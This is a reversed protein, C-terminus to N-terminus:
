FNGKIIECFFLKRQNFAFGMMPDSSEVKDDDDDEEEDKEDVDTAQKLKRERKRGPCVCHLKALAM